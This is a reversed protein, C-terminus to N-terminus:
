WDIKILYKGAELLGKAHLDNAIMQVDPYFNREWWLKTLWEEKGEAILTKPDRALWSSFRVGMEPHNVEEPVTEPFDSDDFEIPVNLTELRREKCGDQQQFNYPRKYTNRVLEDWDDVEIIKETKIKMKM